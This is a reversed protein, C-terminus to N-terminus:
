ASKILIAVLFGLLAGIGAISGDQEAADPLMAEVISGLMAGGAFGEIAAFWPSAGGAPLLAGFFAGIGGILCLSTWLLLIRGFRMGGRLMHAACSMSEPLDALFVGALLALSLGQPGAVSMGIVLAAPVSDVLIGLWIALAVNKKRILETSVREIDQHTVEISMKSLYHLGAKKWKGAQHALEPLKSLEALRHAVMAEVHERLEPSEALVAQFDGHPIAFLKVPTLTRATANRSARTILAMEGFTEDQGLVAITRRKRSIRIEGSIICYLCDGTEGERFVTGDAAMEVVRLNPVLRVVLPIPLSRFLEIRALRTIAQRAFRRKERVVQKRVLSARRLFAGQKNIQRNLLSFFLGGALAGLCVAFVTGPPGDPALANGFLEITVAFLLAGAGFAMLSATIRAGPAARMGILAGIPLSLSSVVGWFLALLATDM